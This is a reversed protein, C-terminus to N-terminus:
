LSIARKQLGEKGERTEPVGRGKLFLSTQMAATRPNGPKSALRCGSAESDWGQNTAVNSLVLHPVWSFPAWSPLPAPSILPGPATGMKRGKSRCARGRVGWTQPEEDQARLPQRGMEM